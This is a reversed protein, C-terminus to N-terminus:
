YEQPVPFSVLVPEHRDRGSRGHCLKAAGAVGGGGERTWGVESSLYRSTFAQQM